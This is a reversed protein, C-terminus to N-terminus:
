QVCPGCWTAWINLFVTKGKFRAFNATSDKLDLVTWDYSAPEGTGSDDLSPKRPRPGFFALYLVWLAVFIVGIALWTLGSHDRTQNMQMAERDYVQAREEDYRPGSLSASSSTRAGSPSPQVGSRHARFRTEIRTAVRRPSPRSSTRSRLM